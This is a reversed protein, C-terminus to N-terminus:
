YTPIMERWPMSVCWGQLVWVQDTMSADIGAKVQEKFEELNYSIGGGTGGLTFAPRIILPFRGIEAAIALAEEINSATGSCLYRYCVSLCAPVCAHVPNLYPYPTFSCATVFSRSTAVVPAFTSVAPLATAATFLLLYM